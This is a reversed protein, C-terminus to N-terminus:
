NVTLEDRDKERDAEVSGGAIVARGSKAWGRLTAVQQEMTKALPVTGRVAKVLDTPQVKRNGDFADILASQVVCELEAGTFTESAEAATTVDVKAGARNAHITLIERRAARDPLDVFFIEDFRGKRLLEPPLRSIDNATAVVFVEAKHDQLWSLLGGFVRQSTGGDGGPGQSFAKELEDVMLVCPAVAEATRLASRLNSESEGVLSGFLRGADMRVLPVNWAAAFARACLTKGTGPVGVLLVGKPPLIGAAKAEPTFLRRRKTIWTKLMSLGGVADLGRDAEEYQLIGGRAIIQKKADLALRVSQQNLARYRVVSLAVITKAEDMTLGTCARALDGLVSEDVTIKGKLKESSAYSAALRRIYNELDAREPLPLDVLTVQDAVEGPVKWDRGLLVITKGSGRVAYLGRKLWSLYIARSLEDWPDCLVLVVKNTAKEVASIAEDFGASPSTDEVTWRSGDDNPVHKRLGTSSAWSWLERADGNVFRTIATRLAAIGRGEELTRLHIGPLHAKLCELLEESTQM